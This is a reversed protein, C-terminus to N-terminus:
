NLSNFDQTSGFKWTEPSIIFDVDILGSHVNDLKLVTSVVPRVLIIISELALIFCHIDFPHYIGHIYHSTLSPLIVLLKLSPSLNSSLRSDSNSTSPLCFPPLLIVCWSSHSVHTQGFIFSGNLIYYLSQIMSTQCLLYNIVRNHLIKFILNLFKFNVSGRFIKNISHFHHKLYFLNSSYLILSPIDSCDVM